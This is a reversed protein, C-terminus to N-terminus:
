ENLITVICPSIIFGDPAIDPPETACFVTLIKPLPLSISSIVSFRFVNCFCIFVIELSFSSNEVLMVSVISFAAASSFSKCSISIFYAVSFCFTSIISALTNFSSCLKSFAFFSSSFIM